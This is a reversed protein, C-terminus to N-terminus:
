VDKLFKKSTKTKAKKKLYLQKGILKTKGSLQDVSCKMNANHFQHIASTKFKEQVM